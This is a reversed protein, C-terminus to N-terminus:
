PRLDELRHAVTDAADVVKNKARTGIFKKHPDPDLTAMLLGGMLSVNKLFHITQNQRSAPDSENWFPHGVVSTPALTSALVLASLRPLRGTALAAGAVVHVAGNVRVLNTPTTQLQPAAKGLADAVPEAKPGIAPANRLANVGGYVFMSALMPRAITRLLTM